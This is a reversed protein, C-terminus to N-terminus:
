GKMNKLYLHEFSRTFTGGTQLEHIHFLYVSLFVQFLPFSSFRLLQLLLSFLFYSNIQQSVKINSIKQLCDIYGDNKALVEDDIAEDKSSQIKNPSTQDISALQMQQLLAQDHVPESSSRRNKFDYHSTRQNSVGLLSNGSNGTATAYPNNSSSANTSNTNTSTTNHSM